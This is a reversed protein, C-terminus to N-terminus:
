WKTACVCGSMNGLSMNDCEFDSRSLYVTALEKLTRTTFPLKREFISASKAIYSLVVHIYLELIDRHCRAIATDGM